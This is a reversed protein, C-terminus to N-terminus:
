FKKNSTTAIPLFFAPFSGSLWPGWNATQAFEQKKLCRCSPTTKMQQRFFILFPAQNKYLEKRIVNKYNHYRYLLM